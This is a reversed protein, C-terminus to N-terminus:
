EEVGEYKPIPMWAIVDGIIFGNTYWEKESFCYYACTEHYSGDYHIRMAIIVWESYDKDGISQSEPLGDEVRIWEGQERKPLVPPLMKMHTIVRDENFADGSHWEAIEKVEDIVAQRSVCDDCPEQELAKIAMDWYHLCKETAYFSVSGKPANNHLNEDLKRYAKIYEIAEIVERTM